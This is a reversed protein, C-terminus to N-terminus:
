DKYVKWILLFNVIVAVLAPVISMDFGRLVVATIIILTGVANLVAAIVQMAEM